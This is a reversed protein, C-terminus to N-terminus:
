SFIAGRIQCKLYHCNHVDYKIEAAYHNPPFWPGKDGLDKRVKFNSSEYVVLEDPM